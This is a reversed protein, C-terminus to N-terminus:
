SIGKRFSELFFFLSFFLLPKVTTAERQFRVTWFGSRRLMPFSALVAVNVQRIPPATMM